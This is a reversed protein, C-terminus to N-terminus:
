EAHFACALRLFMEWLFFYKLLLAKLGKSYKIRAYAEYFSAFLYFGNSQFWLSPSLSKKKKKASGVAHPLKWALLQIQM